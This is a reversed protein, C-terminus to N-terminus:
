VAERSLTYFHQQMLRLCVLHTGQWRNKDYFDLARHNTSDALLQLRLLGQRCAIHELYQLLASGVGQGRWSSGVVVDEVLGVVGGEATSILQQMTAMGVIQGASEAVAVTAGPQELLLALGRQQAQVDVSFDQELSFLQALLQAMLTIDGTTASRLTLSLAQHTSM